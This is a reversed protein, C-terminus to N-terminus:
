TYTSFSMRDNHKVPHLYQKAWIFLLM